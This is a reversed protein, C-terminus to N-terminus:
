ELYKKQMGMLFIKEHKEDSDAFVVTISYKWKTDDLFPSPFLNAANIEWWVVDDLTKDFGALWEAIEGQLPALYQEIYPRFNNTYPIISM